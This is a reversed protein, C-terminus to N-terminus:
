KRLRYKESNGNPVTTLPGMRTYIVYLVGNITGDTQNFNSVDQYANSAMNLVQTTYTSTMTAPIAYRHRASATESFSQTFEINDANPDVLPNSRPVYGGSANGILLPYVGILKLQKTFTSSTFQSVTASANGHSTLPTPGDAFTVRLKLINDGANIAYSGTVSGKTAGSITFPMSSYTGGSIRVIEATTVAGTYESQLADNLLIQGRDFSYSVTFSSHTNVQVYTQGGSLALSPDTKTPQVEPFLITDFMQSFNKQNDGILDAVTKGTLHPLSATISTPVTMTSSLNTSYNLSPISPKNAIYAFGGDSQAADWDPNVLTPIPPKNSLDDYSGSTAVTALTPKNAIYAFGGDSQKADWDPNVLTPISIGSVTTSLNTLSTNVTGIEANVFTKIDYASVPKTGETTNQINTDLADLNAKTIFQIKSPTVSGRNIKVATVANQLLQDTGVSDDAIKDQTVANQALKAATVSAKALLETNIDGPELEKQLEDLRLQRRLVVTDVLGANFLM